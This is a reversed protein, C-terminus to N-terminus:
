IGRNSRVLAKAAAYQEPTTKLTVPEKDMTVTELILRGSGDVFLDFHPLEVGLDILRELTFQAKGFAAQAQATTHQGTENMYSIRGQKEKLGVHRAAEARHNHDAPNRGREGSAPRVNPDPRADPPIADM